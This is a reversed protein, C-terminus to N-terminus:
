YYSLNLEKVAIWAKALEFVCRIAPWTVLAFCDESVNSGYYPKPNNTPFM